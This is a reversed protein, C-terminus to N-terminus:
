DEEMDILFELENKFYEEDSNLQYVLQKEALDFIVGMDDNGEFLNDIIKEIQQEKNMDQIKM